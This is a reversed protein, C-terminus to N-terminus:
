KFVTLEPNYIESEIGLFDLVSHFTHYQGVEELQKISERGESSWVIFPIEVQEKPALAMPVGHMYLNNEGLSEGHDSVFLMASRRTPITRLIEIVSDILYDTYVITNDYANMLETPDAKAMEVTTCVPTFREFESPYKSYYIPGHSTSTHLVIFVKDASSSEIAEKLGELLIADYREDAEPHLAKLDAVRQYKEIHVPPEGWNNTRWIVDVGARYLYNPLIEFLKDTPKHDLIAKVGATTYTAASKAILAVVNEQELLPNTPKNYGYLSFNERRASEGIILVVVDKSESAIKADPLLIEKANRKAFTLMKM